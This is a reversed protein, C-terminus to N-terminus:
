NFNVSPNVMESKRHEPGDERDAEQRMVRQQHTDGVEDFTQKGDGDILISIALVFLSSMPFFYKIQIKIITTM